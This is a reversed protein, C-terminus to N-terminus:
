IKDSLYIQKLKNSDVKGILTKPFEDVFFVKKPRAFPSLRQEIFDCVYEAFSERDETKDKLSVFLVIAEGTREDPAAVACTEKIKEIEDMTLREIESPFVNVGSVKAIRKIRSVFYVFGDEDVYGIDGSRVYKVGDYVFFARNTAEPDGYYGNMLEDGAICLEGTKGTELPKLDESFARITIGRVPKGVSGDRHAYTTNVACVTVTETLGYGEYLRASSGNESMRANFDELLKKPVYDGGVFAQRLNKLKEGSFEPKSLLANYLVPVGILYNIKNQEILKITDYTHFKPMLTNCGGHCLMAHMGMALGFGHFMPLVALMCGGNFSTIGLIEMGNDTLANIARSSLEITKPHGGTGGSHLYVATAQPDAFDPESPPMCKVADSYFYVNESKKVRNVLPMTKLSFLIRRVFGLYHAPSCLLTKKSLILEEYKDIMIDPLVLLKSKVSDMYESLQAKPALPHVMHAVAGIKSAAYFVVACQPINPMCVTVADGKQIGLGVLFGAVADIDRIFSAYDIKAGLFLLATKDPFLAASDKVAAYLTKNKDNM